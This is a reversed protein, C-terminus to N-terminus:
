ALPEGIPSVVSGRALIVQTPPRQSGCSAGCGNTASGARIEHLADGEWSHGSGALVFFIEEEDVHVHVPTSRAGPEIRWRSLTVGRGGRPRSLTKREVRLEGHEHRMWPVDDWHSIM